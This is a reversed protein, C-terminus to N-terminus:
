GLFIKVQKINGCECIYQRKSENLLMEKDCKECCNSKKPKVKKEQEM